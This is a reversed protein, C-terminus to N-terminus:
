PFACSRPILGLTLPYTEVCLLPSPCWFSAAVQLFAPNISGTPNFVCRSTRPSVELQVKCWLLSAMHRAQGRLLLYTMRLM